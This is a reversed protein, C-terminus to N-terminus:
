KDRRDRLRMKSWRGGVLIDCRRRGSRCGYRGASRLLLLGIGLGSDIVDRGSRGFDWSLWRSFTFACRQRSRGSRECRSHTLWIAIGIAVVHVGSRKVALSM